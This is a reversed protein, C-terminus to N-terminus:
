VVIKNNNEFYKYLRAFRGNMYTLMAQTLSIRLPIHEEPDEGLNEIICDAFVLADGVSDMNTNVVRAMYSDCRQSIFSIMEDIGSSSMRRAWERLFLSSLTKKYELSMDSKRILYHEIFYQYARVEKIKESTMDIGDRRFFDVNFDVVEEAARALNPGIENRKLKEKSFLGM